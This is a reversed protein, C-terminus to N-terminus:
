KGQSSPPVMGKIRFYTVLNGDHEQLHGTNGMLGNARANQRSGFAVPVMEGAAQDTLVDYAKDCYAISDRLSDHLPLASSPGLVPTRSVSFPGLIEITQLEGSLAKSMVEQVTVAREWASAPYTM